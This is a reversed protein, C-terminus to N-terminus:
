CRRLCAYAVTLRGPIAICTALTNGLPLWVEQQHHSTLSVVSDELNGLIHLRCHVSACCHGYMCVIKQSVTVLFSNPTRWVCSLLIDDKGSTLHLGVHWVGKPLPLLTDLRCCCRLSTTHKHATQGPSSTKQFASTAHLGLLGCSHWTVKLM